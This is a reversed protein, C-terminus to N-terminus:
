NPTCIYWSARTDVDIVKDDSFCMKMESMCSEMEITTDKIFRFYDGRAATM